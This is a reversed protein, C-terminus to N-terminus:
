EDTDLKYAAPVAKEQSRTLLLLCTLGAATYQCFIYTQPCKFFADVMALLSSYKCPLVPAAPKLPWRSCPMAFLLRGSAFNPTPAAPKLRGRLAQRSYRFVGDM